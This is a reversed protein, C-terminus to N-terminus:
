DLKWAFTKGKSDASVLRKGDPSFALHSIGAYHGTLTKLTRGSRVDRVSIAHGADEFAILRGDSSLALTSGFNSGTLSFNDLNKDADIAYTRVESGGPMAGFDIPGDARISRIQGSVAVRGAAMALGRGELMTVDENAVQAGTAGDFRGLLRLRPTRIDQLTAVWWKGGSQAQAIELVFGDHPLVRRSIVKGTLLDREQTEVSMQDITTM